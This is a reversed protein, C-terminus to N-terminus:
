GETPANVLEWDEALMDAQSALWLIFKNDATKMAIFAGQKYASEAEVLIDLDFGWDQAGIYILYMGKGNWGSRAIRAGQKLAAIAQGFDIM